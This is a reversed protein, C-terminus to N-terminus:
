GTPQSVPPSALRFFSSRLPCDIFERSVSFSYVTLLSTRDNPNTWRSGQAYFRLSVPYVAIGVGVLLM